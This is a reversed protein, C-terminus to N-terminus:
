SLTCSCNESSANQGRTEPCDTDELRVRIVDDLLRDADQVELDFTDGDVVQTVRGYVEDPSGAVSSILIYSILGILPLLKM